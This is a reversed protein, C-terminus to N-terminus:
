SRGLAWRLYVAGSTFGAGFASLVIRDGYALRGHEHLESLGLPITGAVTNGYRDLNIVVRDLDVGLRRAVAEIIRRNAQHPILWALDECALANRKLITETVEAMGTVAAKFVAPGDQVVFHERAAVTDASAPKLSGGSPIHLAEEGGGDMFCVHDLIGVAEDEIPEVLVAGAGDGFLVATARDRPDVVTSMRDAGCVLACRLAGTEVLKAVTVLAYVFGSCAAAVDFGWARVAGLKRQVIAATSPLPRDPTMTAVVIGDVREPAIGRADLCRRAAAVALDSTAGDAAVRREAIGTRSRIWEDSTDLREAFHANPVIHPPVFHGTATIAARAAHNVIRRHYV